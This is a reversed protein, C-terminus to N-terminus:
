EIPMMGEGGGYMLVMSWRDEKYEEIYSNIPHSTKMGDLTYFGGEGSDGPSVM